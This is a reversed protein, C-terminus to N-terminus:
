NLNGKSIPLQTLCLKYAKRYEVDKARLHIQINAPALIMCCPQAIFLTFDNIKKIVLIPKSCSKITMLTADLPRKMGYCFVIQGFEKNIAMPKSHFAM